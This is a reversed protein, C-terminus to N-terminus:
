IVGPYTDQQGVFQALQVLPGHVEQLAPYEGQGLLGRHQEVLQKVHVLPTHEAQM